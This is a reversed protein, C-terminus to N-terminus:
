PTSTAIPDVAPTVPDTAAAWEGADVTRRTRRQLAWAVGGACAGM